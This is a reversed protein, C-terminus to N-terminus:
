NKLLTIFFLKWQFKCKTIAQRSVAQGGMSARSQLADTSPWHDREGM